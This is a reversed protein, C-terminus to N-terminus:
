QGAAADPANGTGTGATMEGTTSSSVTAASSLMMMLMTIWGHLCAIYVVALVRMIPYRRFGRGMRLALADVSDMFKLAGYVIGNTSSGRRMLLPRNEVGDRISQQQQQQQQQQSVFVRTTREEELRHTARDCRRRWEAADRLAAELANQKELLQRSLLVHDRSGIDDGRLSILAGAATFTGGNKEVAARLENLERQRNQLMQKSRKHASIESDLAERAGRIDLRLFDIQQVLKLREEHVESVERRSAAVQAQLRESEQKMSVISGKLQEIQEQQEMVKSSLDSDDNDHNGNNESNNLHKGEKKQLELQHRLAEYEHQKEELLCRSKARHEDFRMRTDRLSEELQHVQLSRQLLEQKAADTAAQHRRVERTLAEIEEDKRKLETSELELGNQSITEMATLTGGEEISHHGKKGTTTQTSRLGNMLSGGASVSDMPNNNNKDSYLTTTNPTHHNPFATPQAPFLPLRAKSEMVHPHPSYDDDAGFGSKETEGGELENWEGKRKKENRKESMVSDATTEAAAAAEEAHQLAHQEVREDIAELFATVGQFM